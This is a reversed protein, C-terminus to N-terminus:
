KSESWSFDWYNDSFEASRSGDDTKYETNHWQM